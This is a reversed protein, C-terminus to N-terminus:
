EPKKEDTGESLKAEYAARIAHVLRSPLRIEQFMELANELEQGEYKGTVSVISKFILLSQEIGIPVKDELEKAECIKKLHDLKDRHCPEKFEIIVDTDKSEDKLQVKFYSPKLEM